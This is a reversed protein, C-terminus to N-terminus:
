LKLKESSVIAQIKYLSKGKFPGTKIMELGTPSLERAFAERVEPEDPFVGVSVNAFQITKIDIKRPDPMTGWPPKTEALPAELLLEEQYTAGPELQKYTVRNKPALITYIPPPFVELRIELLSPDDDNFSLYAGKSGDVRVPNTVILVSSHGTNAIQLQFRLRTSTRELLRFSIKIQDENRNDNAGCVVNASHASGPFCHACFLNLLILSLAKISMNKKVVKEPFGKM